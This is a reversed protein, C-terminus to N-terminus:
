AEKQSLTFKGLMKKESLWMYKWHQQCFIHLFLLLLLFALKQKNLPQQTGPTSFVKYMNNIKVVVEHPLYQSYAQKWISIIFNLSDSLSTLNYWTVCSLHGLVTEENGIFYYHYSSIIALWCKMNFITWSNYVYVDYISIEKWTCLKLM